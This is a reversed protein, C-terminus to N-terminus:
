TRDGSPPVPRLPPKGRSGRKKCCSEKKGKSAQPRTGNGSDLTCRLTDSSVEVERIVSSSPQLSASVLLESCESIAHSLNTVFRNLVQVTRSSVAGHHTNSHYTSHHMGSSRSPPAMGYLRFPVESRHSSDARTAQPSSAPIWRIGLEQLARGVSRWSERHSWSSGVWARMRLASNVATSSHKASPSTSCWATRTSACGRGPRRKM